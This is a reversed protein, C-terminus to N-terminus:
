RLRGTFSDVLYKHVVLVKHSLSQRLGPLGQRGTFERHAANQDAPILDQCGTGTPAAGSIPAIFGVVGFHNRQPPQGVAPVPNIV